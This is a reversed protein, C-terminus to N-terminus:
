LQNQKYPTLGDSQAVPNWLRIFARKSATARLDPGNAAVFHPDLQNSPSCGHKVQDKAWAAFDDDATVSAQWASTLDSLMQPSLVSRGPMSALKGLLQTRSTAAHRFTQVDGALNPGCAKVDNYARNVAGRDAVSQALLAGLSAAAQQPSSASSAGTPTPTPTPSIPSSSSVSPSPATTAPSSQAVPPPARHGFPHVVFTVVVAIAAVVVVAAGIALLRRGNRGRGRPGVNTDPVPGPEEALGERPTFEPTEGPPEAPELQPWPRYETDGGTVAPSTVTPAAGLGESSAESAKASQM